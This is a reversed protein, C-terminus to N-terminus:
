DISKQDNPEYEHKCIECGKGESSSHGFVSWYQVLKLAPILQRCTEKSIPQHRKGLRLSMLSKHSQMIAAIIAHCADVDYQNEVLDLRNLSKLSPLESALARCGENDIENRQLNLNELSPLESLVHVLSRCNDADIRNDSLHLYTLSTLKSMSPVLATFDLMPNRSLNLYELSELTEFVNALERHGGDGHRCVNRLTLRRLAKLTSFVPVLTRYRGDDLQISSLVLSHLSEFNMLSAALTRIGDDNIKQSGSCEAEIEGHMLSELAIMNTTLKPFRVRCFDLQLSVLAPLVAKLSNCSIEDFGTRMLNLYTLNVMPPMASILARVGANGLKNHGVNLYKLDPISNLAAALALGGSKKIKNDHLDLHTMSNLEKLASAVERTGDDGFKNNSLDLHTMSKMNKLGSAIIQIGADGIDNYSLNLEKVSTLLIMTPAM